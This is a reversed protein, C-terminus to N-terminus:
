LSRYKKDPDSITHGVAVIIEAEEMAAKARAEAAVWPKSKKIHAFLRDSAELSYDTQQYEVMVCLKRLLTNAMVADFGSWTQVRDFFTESNYGEKVTDILLFAHYELKVDDYSDQKKRAM